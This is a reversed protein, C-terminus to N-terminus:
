TNCKFPNPRSPSLAFTYPHLFYLLRRLHLPMRCATRISPPRLAALMSHPRLAALRAFLPWPHSWFNPHFHFLGPSVPASYQVFPNYPILWIVTLHFIPRFPFLLASAPLFLPVPRKAPFLDFGAAELAFAAADPM